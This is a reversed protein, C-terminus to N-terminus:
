GKKIVDVVTKSKKELLKGTQAEINLRLTPETNSKRVNFWWNDYSVTIGDLYDINGDAFADAIDKIKGDKDKVDFNLEGSSFYRKFSAVMNSMPTNKKSLVNMIHIMTVIGSDAFYNDRYYYHGSLEGGFVADKERMTAKIHSHGVRERIPVGGSLNVTEPVVKSSRLDYIITAHKEKLLFEKAIIATIIDASIVGGNEDVFICRDADGDFAVGFDSKTKVVMKKLDVLNKYDLPNAEHNPFTGDLEFYLPIIKCPPKDFVLPLIKGAMGNGADVVIKLPRMHKTVFGLVFSRYDNIIDKKIVRGIQGTQEPLSTKAIQSITLLGTDEGIPIAKERCLKFGNYKAPNHSATVMISADFGYFGVAFYSMETSVLGIDVVNVGLSKIGDILANALQESSTRMDRGVVINKAANNEDKLFKAFAVGIRQTVYENIENPFVGRIDYSKFIGMNINVGSNNQMKDKDDRFQCISCKPYNVRQRGRCIAASLGYDSGPCRPKTSLTSNM